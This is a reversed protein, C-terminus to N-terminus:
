KDLIFKDKGIKEILSQITTLNLIDDADLIVGFEKSVLAILVLATLSDWEDLDQINTEVSLNEGGIELSKQFLNLFKEIEM